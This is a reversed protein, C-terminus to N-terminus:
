AHSVVVSARSAGRKLVPIPVAARSVCMSLWGCFYACPCACPCGCLRVCAVHNFRVCACLVFSYVGGAVLPVLGPSRTKVGRAGRMGGTRHAVLPDDPRLGLGHWGTRVCSLICCWCFASVARLCGVIACLPEGHWWLGCGRGALQRVWVAQCSDESSTHLFELHVMEAPASHLHASAWQAGLVSHNASQARGALSTALAMRGRLEGALLPPGVAGRGGQQQVHASCAETRVQMGAQWRDARRRYSLTLDGCRRLRAREPSGM